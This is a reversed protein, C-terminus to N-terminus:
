KIEKNIDLQKRSEEYRYLILIRDKWNISNSGHKHEVIKM